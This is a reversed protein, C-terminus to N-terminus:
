NPYLKKYFATIDGSAIYFKAEPTGNFQGHSYRLENRFEIIKGTDKNEMTTHINLQHAPVKAEINKIVVPSTFNDKSPVQYIEVGSSTTKAYYYEEKRFLRLLSKPSTNIYPSLLQVIKEGAAVACKRKANIYENHSEVTEKLWKSFVKERTTSTTSKQFRYYDCNAFDAVLSQSNEFPTSYSLKLTGDKEMDVSSVYGRGGTCYPPPGFKLLLDRTKKFWQNLYDPAFEEFVHLGRGYVEKDMVLNMLKYLGMNELIYSHEKLSFRFESIILDVAEGSQTDLGVWTVNPNDSIKFLNRIVKGLRLGNSIIQAEESTFSSENSAINKVDLGSCNAIHNKCTSLFYDPTIPRGAETSHFFLFGVSLERLNTKIDAM